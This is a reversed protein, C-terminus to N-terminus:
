HHRNTPHCRVSIAPIAWSCTMKATNGVSVRIDRVSGLSGNGDLTPRTDRNVRQLSPSDTPLLRLGVTGLPASQPLSCHGRDAASLLDPYGLRRGLALRFLDGLNCLDLTPIGGAFPSVDIVCAVALCDTDPERGSSVWIFAM